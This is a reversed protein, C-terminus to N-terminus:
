DPCNGHDQDRSVSCVEGGVMGMPIAKVKAGELYNGRKDAWSM